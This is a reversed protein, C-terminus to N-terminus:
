GWGVVRASSVNMFFSDAWHAAVMLSRFIVASQHPPRARPQSTRRGMRWAPAVPRQNAKAQM